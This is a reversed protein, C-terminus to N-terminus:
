TPHLQLEEPNASMILMYMFSILMSAVCVAGAIGMLAAKGSGKLIDELTEAKVVAAESKTAKSPVAVVTTRRKIVLIDDHVHLLGQDQPVINWGFFVASKPMQWGLATSSRFEKLTVLPEKGVEATEQDTCTVQCGCFHM